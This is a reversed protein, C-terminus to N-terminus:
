PSSEGYSVAIDSAGAPIVREVVSGDPWRIEIREAGPRAFIKTLADQSWYGTGAAIEKLLGWGSGYCVRITAGIASPNREDGQLTVRLGAATNRNRFLRTAAGNQTVVFDLRGDHDFDALAAGRQEGLVRVGSSQASLPEFTGDGRGKLWLGLGADMRTAFPQVGFFNQAMFLDERGDLDVDGVMVGFGPAVQAELPLPAHVFHDGRNLFVRHEFSDVRLTRDVSPEGGLIEAITAHNYESLNSFRNPLFALDQALDMFHRVPFMENERIDYYAQVLDRQGDGDFDDYYLEVSSGRFPHNNGWNTAVFDLRGDADFDGTAIGNWWGNLAELQWGKTGESLTGQNNEFFRLGGWDEAVLLDAWGDGNFDGFSSGRVMGLSKLAEGSTSEGRFGNSTGMLLESRAAQPFRAFVAGGGVFVDLTGDRDVDAVSLAGVSRARMIAETKIRGEEFRLARLALGASSGDEYNTESVLLQRDGSGQQFAVLGLQDRRNLPLKKFAKDDQFDGGTNLIVQLRGRGGGGIILDEWGNGDWDFWVVGPGMQSLRKPLLPDSGFDNYARDIHQHQLKESVDEFWAPADSVAPEVSIGLDPETVVYRHQPRVNSIRATRGSPWKVDLRLNGTDGSIAFTRGAADSSLYRGGAQIEQTQTVEGGSLSLRSGIGATNQGVGRLEVLIRPKSTENRYLGVPTNLNNVVVDLDGDNDLDGLAMGHSVGQEAFGWDTSKEEFSLDGRNRFAVNAQRVKPFMLLKTPILHRPWPGKARIKEEADLDQTDFLHGTTCLLDEYGDLDVDLFVSSWTWDTARLGAMDAIEAYTGDGRNLQLTNRDFQPRDLYQGVQWSYPEMAALKMMRREHRLGLMDAVFFDDWGDRNIDAFDVAMSFTSTHRLVGPAAQQFYGNGSNIWVRDESHFDNCVFLDPDGDQDIDRFMAALGWDRPARELTKGESDRFWGDTWSVATFRGSGDNLYLTDPEGHELVRGEPTIELQERDQPRIMQKNGVRLLAFGTTRITTTRYRAVYLDLDGDLDVDAVATTTTGGSTELGSDLVEDFGGNGDNRFHRTGTGVGNVLLDLDRDGDLDVLTAGTSYQNPCAVPSDVAISEFKWDGLNRYLANRGELRCLYIDLRGDGDIDGLAVGSGNLRIQNRAAERDTLRNAFRVRTTRADLLTFGDKGEGAVNLPVSEVLAEGAGGSWASFFCLIGVLFCSIRSINRLIVPMIPRDANM